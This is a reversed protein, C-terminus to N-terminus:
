IQTKNREWVKSLSWYQSIRCKPENELLVLVIKIKNKRKNLKCERSSNEKRVQTQNQNDSHLSTCVSARNLDHFHFKWNKESDLCHKSVEFAWLSEWWEKVEEHQRHEHNLSWIGFCKFDQWIIENNRQLVGSCTLGRGSVKNRNTLSIFSVM